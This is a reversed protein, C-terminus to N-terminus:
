RKKRSSTKRKTTKKRARTKYKKKSGATKATVGRLSEVSGTSSSNVLQHLQSQLPTMFDSYVSERRSIANLTAEWDATMDPLTAAEPLAKILGRGADTAHIQKGKRVIFGRRFLLEIIGARTAETGLGDTEKLIKRIDASSVYRSIGTMAGLLTADTFYPPPTTNKKILEGRECHLAQGVTLKPLTRGTEKPKERRFLIQWGEKIITKATAVFVGGEIVIHVRTDAHEHIPYFQALYQRAILGYIQQETVSLSSADVKRQTPIIAHHATVNKDNWTPSKISTDASAVFEALKPENHEISDLISCAEKFHGQPLYRCDSRPYTILKHREYLSQCTTLVTQASLGFQRAADIQLISLSFPLPQAQKKRKKEYKTIRAPKGTIRSVVTEALKKVLVRRMDDMYPECADSPQWSATFREDNETVLHAMVEFFPKSVFNDIEECRRVVLGLVPTQVRGVSLVGDYGVKRGQITYARTMNIGYLWDARSRALASASLPAFNKNLDLHALARQVAALNLDSILLRQISSRKKASVRLYDILQDVLLQGERDPDGAHVLEDAEKVLKRLVSLQNKTEKKPQLKWDEPIIPLHQMRWSKFDPDYVHPEAQELLHGICWSVCDGNSIRIFGDGRQEKGGVSSALASAIARGLSPKEAIYLKM